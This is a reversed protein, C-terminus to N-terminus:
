SLASPAVSLVVMEVTLLRASNCWRWLSLSDCHAAARRRGRGIRNRRVHAIRESPKALIGVANDLRKCYTQFRVLWLWDDVVVGIINPQPANQLAPAKPKGVDEAKVVRGLQPVPEQSRLADEVLLRRGSRFLASQECSHEARQVFSDSSGPMVEDTRQALM